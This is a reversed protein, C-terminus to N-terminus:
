SSVSGEDIPPASKSAKYKPSTKNSSLIEKVEKKGIAVDVADTLNLACTTSRNIIQSISRGSAIKQKYNSGYGYKLQLLIGNKDSMM